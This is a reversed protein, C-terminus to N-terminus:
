SVAHDQGAGSVPDTHQRNRGDKLEALTTILSRIVAAKERLKKAHMRDAVSIRMRGDKPYLLDDAAEDHENASREVLRVADDVGREYSM